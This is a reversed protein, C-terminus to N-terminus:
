HTIIVQSDSNEGVENWCLCCSQSEAKFILVFTETNKIDHSEHLVFTISGLKYPLNCETIQVELKIECSNNLSKPALLPFFNCIM